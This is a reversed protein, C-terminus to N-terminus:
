EQFVVVSPNPGSQPQFWSDSVCRLDRRHTVPVWISSDDSAAKRLDTSAPLQVQSGSSTRWGQCKLLCRPTKVGLGFVMQTQSINPNLSKCRHKYFLNVLTKM